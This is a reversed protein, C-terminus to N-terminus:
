AADWPSGLPIPPELARDQRLGTFPCPNATAVVREYVRCLMEQASLYPVEDVPEGCGATPFDRNVWLASPRPGADM